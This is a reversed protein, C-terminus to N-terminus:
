AVLRLTDRQRVRPAFRNLSGGKRHSIQRLTEIIESPVLFGDCELEWLYGIMTTPFPTSLENVFSGEHKVFISFPLTVTFANTIHNFEVLVDSEGHEYRCLIM